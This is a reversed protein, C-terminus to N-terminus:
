LYRGSGDLVVQSKTSPPIRCILSLEEGPKLVLPTVSGPLVAVARDFYLVQMPDDAPVNPLVQRFRASASFWGPESFNLGSRIEGYVFFILVVVIIQWPKIQDEKASLNQASGPGENSVTSM